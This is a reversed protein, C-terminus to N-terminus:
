RRVLGQEREMRVVQPWSRRSILDAMAAYCGSAKQRAGVKLWCEACRRCAAIADELALDAPSPIGAGQPHKKFDM